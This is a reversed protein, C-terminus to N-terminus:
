ECHSLVCPFLNHLPLRLLVFCKHDRDVCADGYKMMIPLVILLFPISVFPHVRLQGAIINIVVVLLLQRDPQMCKIRRAQVRSSALLFSVLIAAAYVDSRALCHCMLSAFPVVYVDSGHLSMVGLYIPSSCAPGHHFAPPAGLPQARADYLATAGCSAPM